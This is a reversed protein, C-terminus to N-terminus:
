GRWARGVRDWLVIVTLGLVAYLPTVIWLSQANLVLRCFVAVLLFSALLLTGAITPHRDVFSQRAHGGEAPLRPM